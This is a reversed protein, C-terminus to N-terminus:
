YKNLQDTDIRSVGANNISTNDARGSFQMTSVGSCSATLYDCDLRVAMKAVGSSEFKAKEGKFSLGVSGM